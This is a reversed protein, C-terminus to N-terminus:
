RKSRATGSLSSAQAPAAHHVGRHQLHVRLHAVGRHGETSGKAHTNAVPPADASHRAQPERRQAAACHPTSSSTTSLMPPGPELPGPGSPGPGRLSSPWWWWELRSFSCDGPRAGQCVRTPRAVRYWPPHAGPAQRFSTLVCACAWGAPAPGARLRLAPSHRESPASRRCAHPASSHSAARYATPLSTSTSTTDTIMPM